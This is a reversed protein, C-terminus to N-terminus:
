QHASFISGSAKFKVTVLSEGVSGSCGSGGIEDLEDLLSLLELELEMDLDLSILLEDLLLLSVEELEDEVLCLELLSLEELEFSTELEVFGLELM